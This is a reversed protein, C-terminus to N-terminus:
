RKRPPKNTKEVKRASIKMYEMDMRQIHYELDERQEGVIYHHKCYENIAVWPIPGDSYGGKYRCTTLDMFANFFFSLGTMLEPANLIKEPIPMRNRYCQEIILKEVPGQEM